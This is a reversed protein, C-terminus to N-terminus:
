NTLTKQFFSIKWMTRYLSDEPWFLFLGKNATPLLGLKTINRIVNRKSRDQDNRTLGLLAIETQQIDHDSYEASSLLSVSQAVCAM